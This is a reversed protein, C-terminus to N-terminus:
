SLILYIESNIWGNRIKQRNAPKGASTKRLGAAAVWEAVVEMVKSQISDDMQCNGQLIYIKVGKQSATSIIKM